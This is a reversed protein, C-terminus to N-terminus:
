MSSYLKKIPKRFILVVILLGLSSLGFVLVKSLINDEELGISTGDIYNFLINTLLLFTILMALLSVYMLVVKFINM